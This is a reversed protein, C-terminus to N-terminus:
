PKFPNRANRPITKNLTSENLLSKVMPIAKSQDFKRKKSHTILTFIIALGVFTRDNRKM